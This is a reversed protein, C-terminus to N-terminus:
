IVKSCFSMVTGHDACREGCHATFREYEDADSLRSCESSCIEKIKQQAYAEDYEFGAGCGPTKKVITEPNQYRYYCETPNQPTISEKIAVKEYEFRRDQQNDSKRKDYSGRRFDVNSYNKKVRKSGPSASDILSQKLSAYDKSYSQGTFIFLSLVALSFFINFKSM